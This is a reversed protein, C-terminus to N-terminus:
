GVGQNPARLLRLHAMWVGQVGRPEGSVPGYGGAQGQQTITLETLGHRGGPRESGADAAPGRFQVDIARPDEDLPDRQRVDLRPRLVRPGRRVEEPQRHEILVSHPRGSEPGPALQGHVGHGGVPDEPVLVLAKRQHVV